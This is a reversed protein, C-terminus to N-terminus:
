VNEYKNANEEHRQSSKFCLKNKFHPVKYVEDFYNIYNTTTDFFNDKQFNMNLKNAKSKLFNKVIKEEKKYGAKNLEM